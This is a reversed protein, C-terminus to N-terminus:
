QNQGAGDRAGIGAGAFHKEGALLALQLREEITRGTGTRERRQDVVVAALLLGVGLLTLHPRKKRLVAVDDEEGDPTAGAFGFAGPPAVGDLLVEEATLLPGHVGQDL